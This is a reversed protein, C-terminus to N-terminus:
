IIGPMATRSFRVGDALFVNKFPIIARPLPPCACACVATGTLDPLRAVLGSRSPGTGACNESERKKEAMEHGCIEQEIPPSKIGPSLLKSGFFIKRYFAPLYVPIQFAPLPTLQFIAYSKRFALYRSASRVQRSTPGSLHPPYNLHFLGCVSLRLNSHLLECVKM